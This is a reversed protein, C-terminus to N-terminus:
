KAMVPFLFSQNMDKEFANACLSICISKDLIQVQNASKM